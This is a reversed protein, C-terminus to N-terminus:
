SLTAMSVTTRESGRYVGLTCVKLRDRGSVIVLIVRHSCPIQTLNSGRRVGSELGNQQEKRGEQQRM